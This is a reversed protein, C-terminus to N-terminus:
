RPVRGEELRQAMDRAIPPQNYPMAPKVYFTVEVEHTKHLREHKDATGIIQDVQPQTTVGRTEITILRKGFGCGKVCRVNSPLQGEYQLIKM